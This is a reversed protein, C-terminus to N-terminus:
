LTNISLPKGWLFRGMAVAQCQSKVIECIPFHVFKKLTRNRMIRGATKGRRRARTAPHGTIPALGTLSRCAPPHAKADYATQCAM